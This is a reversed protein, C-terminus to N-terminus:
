LPVRHLSRLWRCSSQVWGPTSMARSLAKKRGASGRDSGREDPPGGAKTEVIVGAIAWCGKQIEARCLRFSRHSPGTLSRRPRSMPCPRILRSGSNEEGVLSRVIECRKECEGASRAAGGLPIATRHLRRPAIRFSERLLGPGDRWRTPECRRRNQFIFTSPESQADADADADADAAAAAAAAVADTATAAAAMICDVPILKVWRVRGARPRSRM